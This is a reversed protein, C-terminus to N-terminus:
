YSNRTLIWVWHRKCHAIIPRIAADWEAPYKDEMRGPRSKIEDWERWFSKPMTKNSHKYRRVPLNKAREAQDVLAREESESSSPFFEKAFPFFLSMMSFAREMEPIVKRHKYPNINLFALPSLQALPSKARNFIVM